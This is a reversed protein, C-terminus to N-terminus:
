KKKMELAIKRVEKFLIDIHKVFIAQIKEDLLENAEEYGIGMISQIFYKRSNNRATEYMYYKQMQVKQDYEADSMEAFGNKMFFTELVDLQEKFLLDQTLIYYREKDSETPLDLILKVAEFQQSKIILAIEKALEMQKKLTLSESFQDIQIGGKGIKFRGGKSRFFSGIAYLFSSCFLFIATLIAMIIFKNNFDVTANLM